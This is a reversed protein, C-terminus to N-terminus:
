VISPNIDEKDTLQCYLFLFSAIVVLFSAFFRTQCINTELNNEQRFKMVKYRKYGLYFYILFSIFVTFTFINKSLSKANPNKERYFKKELEDGYINFLSLIIFVVWIWEDITLDKLKENQKM